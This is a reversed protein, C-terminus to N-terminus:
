TRANARDGLLRYGAYGIALPVGLRVVARRLPPVAAIAVAAVLLASFPDAAARRLIGSARDRVAAVKAGTQVHGNALEADPGLTWSPPDSAPFSEEVAEDVQEEIKGKDGM